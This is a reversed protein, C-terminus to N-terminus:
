KQKLELKGEFIEKWFYNMLQNEFKKNNDDEQLKKKKESEKKANKKQEEENELNEPKDKSNREM